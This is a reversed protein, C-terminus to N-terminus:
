MKYKFGAQVWWSYFERQIPRDERGIYYSLPADSINVVQLYASLGKMIEQNASFDVQFHDNYYEDHEADEGVVDIYSSHFNLSFQGTFGGKQYSLAFNATNGAQGPLTADDRGPLDASSTVFTYNAFIGFGDLFGPLFNLQQQWNVEFGYLTADGGNVSQYVEYGDYAGGDEELVSPYIIDSLSKYFFGGSIIGIGAFYHEALLDLNYATTPVLDPNGKEIEEDEQLIISSPVLDEFNPRALGSTFAARFNTQPSMKYKLHLMPLIHNHSNDASIKNTEQYDGDVDFIVENGNYSTNTIEDRVGVLLMLNDFNITTM